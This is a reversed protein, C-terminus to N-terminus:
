EFAARAKFFAIVLLGTGVISVIWLAEYGYHALIVGGVASAVGGGGFLGLGVLGSSLGSAGVEFALTALTSQVLVYGLGLAVVALAGIGWHSSLALLSAALLGLAAGIMATERRGMRRTVRGMCVGAILSAVGFLMLVGGARLPDLGGRQQLFAGIFGYIGLLLYGDAFALLYVSRGKPAGVARYLERTFDSTPKHPLDDGLRRLLGFVIMAMGAFVAFVVRWSVYQALLGGFGVSMAQGLFVIGMFRGVHTQREDSPARDGILALSVAILGAAFFGTVCRCICLCLFSPSLACGVTGFALGLMLKRLLRLRGYGESFYGHVPQMLGYPIMYAALVLAAQAVSVGLGEAISPLIPAVIWNDAASVLGGCGLALVLNDRTPSDATETGLARM